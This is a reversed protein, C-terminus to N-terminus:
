SRDPTEQNSPRASRGALARLELASRPAAQRAALWAGAAVALGVGLGALADVGYHFQGYVSGLALLSTPIVLALGLARWARLAAATAAISVAVHSSPFAAGWAATDELFQRTLQAIATQAAANDAAPFLVRPGVVPFILFMTYCIYFTAMITTMARQMAERQGTVWLAFPAAVIIPYYAVYGLHLVWSLWVSPSWRIWERWPQFGFLAQEWGLVIRDYVRGAAQNALGVETYLATVILLPYWDGLFRGVPGARRARPMLLALTVLLGHVVLFVPLRDAPVCVVLVAASALAYGLTWRDLPRGRLDQESGFRREAEARPASM